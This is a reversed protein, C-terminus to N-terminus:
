SFTGPIDNAPSEVIQIGNCCNKPLVHVTHNRAQLLAASPRTSAPLTVIQVGDGLVTEPTSCEPSTILPPHECTLSAAASMAITDQPAVLIILDHVRERCPQRSSAIVCLVESAVNDREITRAVGACKM